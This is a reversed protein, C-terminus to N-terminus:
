IEGKYYRTIFESMNAAVPRHCCKEGIDEHELIYITTEDPVDDSGVRYCYYDGCGNTAFFIFKDVREIYEAKSFDKEFLPLYCKRNLKVQEIIEKASLLLWKDGNTERLLDRLEKPFPYSVAKEACDIEHERCPPQIKVRENGKSLELILERYM